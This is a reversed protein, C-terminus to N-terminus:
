VRDFEAARHWVCPAPHPGIASRNFSSVGGPEGDPTQWGMIVFQDTLRVFQLTPMTMPQDTDQLMAAPGKTLIPAVQGNRYEWRLGPMKEAEIGVSLADLDVEVTLRGFMKAGPGKITCQLNAPSATAPSIALLLALLLWRRVLSGAFAFRM